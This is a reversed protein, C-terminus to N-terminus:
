SPIFTSQQTDLAIKVNVLLVERQRVHGLKELSQPRLNQIALAKEEELPKGNLGPTIVLRRHGVQANPLNWINHPM